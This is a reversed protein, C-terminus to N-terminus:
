RAVARPTRPDLTIMVSMLELFEDQPLADLWQGYDDESMAYFAEGMGHIRSMVRTQAARDFLAVPLVRPAPVVATGSARPTRPAGTRRLRFGTIRNAAVPWGDNGLGETQGPVSM